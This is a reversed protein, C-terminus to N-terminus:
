ISILARNIGAKVAETRSAVGLKQFISSIHFKVTHESIRLLYAITKNGQGDAIMRLIEMERPTLYARNTTVPAPGGGSDGAQYLIKLGAAASRIAQLVQSGTAGFPLVGQVEGRVVSDSSFPEEARRCVIVAPPRAAAAVAEAFFPRMEELVNRQFTDVFCVLVDAEARDRVVCTEGSRELSAVLGAPAETEHTILFIRIM